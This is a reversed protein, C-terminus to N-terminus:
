HDHAIVQLWGEKGAEITERLHDPVSVRRGLKSPFTGHERQAILSSLETSSLRDLPLNPGYQVIRVGLEHAKELLNFANMPLRQSQEKLASLGCLPM